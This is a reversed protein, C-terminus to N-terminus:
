QDCCHEQGNRFDCIQSVFHNELKKIILLNSYYTHGCLQDYSLVKEM